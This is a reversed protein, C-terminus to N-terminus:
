IVRAGWAGTLGSLNLGGKGGGKPGSGPPAQFTGNDLMYATWEIVKGTLPDTRMQNDATRYCLVVIGEDIAYQAVTWKMLAGVAMNIIKSNNGFAEVTADWCADVFKKPEVSQYGVAKAARTWNGGSFESQVAELMTQCTRKFRAPHLNREYTEIYPKYLLVPDQFKGGQDLDYLAPPTTQVPPTKPM